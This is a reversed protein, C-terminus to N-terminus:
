GYRAGRQTFCRRSFLAAHPVPALGHRARLEEVQALVEGRARGHVMTFLNYRWDPLRRPRRYCLTVCPEAALTRGLEGVREDPVDWVVMANAAYGLPRHRVVVGIRRAVGTELWRGLTAVLAGESRGTEGALEAFPRAVLPFGDRMPALLRRESPAVRAAGARGGARPHRRGTALDFGLDIYFEEDLPLRLMPLGAEAEIRACAAELAASSPAAAVFWLNYRHEREYSHNVEPQAGLWGAFSELRDAPLALAALLSAGAANPRFVVGIRSVAGAASLRRYRALVDVEDTGTAAAIAAFPQEVLPFDRQWDNLLRLDLADM